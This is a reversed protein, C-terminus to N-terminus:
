TVIVRGDPVITYCDHLQWAAAMYGGQLWWTVAMYDGHLRRTVRVMKAAESNLFSLRMRTTLMDKVSVCYEHKM